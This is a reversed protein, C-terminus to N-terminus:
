GELIMGKDDFSTGPDHEHRTIAEALLSFPGSFLQADLGASRTDAGVTATNLGSSDNNGMYDAGVSVLTNGTDYTQFAPGDNKVAGLPNWVARVGARMGNINDGPTNNKGRGEGNAVSAAFELKGENATGHYMAQPEYEPEFNAFVISREGFQQVASGQVAERGFPFETQGLLVATGNDFGWDVYMHRVTFTGETAPTTPKANTNLDMEFRYLVNEAGANRSLDLRSRPISINVGDKTKDTSSVTEARAQIRGKINLSWKGDPSKFQLKTASGGNTQVDPARLRDLRSEILDVEGRSEDARARVMEIMEDYEA